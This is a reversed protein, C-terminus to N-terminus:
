SKKSLPTSPKRENTTPSNNKGTEVTKPNLIGIDHTDGKNEKSTMDKRAASFLSGEDFDVRSSLVFSQKQNSIKPSRYNDVNPAADNREKLSSSSTAPVINNLNPRLRDVENISQQTSIHVDSESANLINSDDKSQIDDRHQEALTAMVLTADFLQPADVTFVIPKGGDSFSAMVPLNLHDAFSIIARFEKLCYTVNSEKSIQYDEFEGPQMTLQSHVMKKNGDDDEVFNKMHFQSPTVIMTVEEQNSLFNLVAETLTKAKAVFRNAMLNQDYNAMLSDSEIFPLTYTKTVSYKCIICIKLKSTTDCVSLLCSEATKELQSISKFAIMIGRMTVRCKSDNLGQFSTEETNDIDTAQPIQQSAPSVIGARSSNANKKSQHSYSSFFSPKFTYSVFASRSSNVTRIALGDISPDVYLEEGIKALSHIARAFVKINPGPVICKM